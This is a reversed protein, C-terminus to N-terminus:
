VAPRRAVAVLRGEGRAREVARGAILAAMLTARVPASRAEVRWFRRAGPSDRRALLWTLLRESGLQQWAATGGRTLSSVRLGADSLARALAREDYHCVHAPAELAAWWRGGARAAPSGADPVEVIVVGGPRLHAALRALAERPEPEHELVSFLTACAISRPLEAELLTGELVRLGRRRAESAARASLEIGLAECGLADRAAALLDGRGCGVDLLVEGAGLAPLLALQARVKRRWALHSFVGALRRGTWTASEFPETGALSAPDFRVPGRPEAPESASALEARTPRPFLSRLSCARCRLLRAPAGGWGPLADLELALSAGGCLPCRAASM